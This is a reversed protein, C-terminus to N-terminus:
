GQFRPFYQQTYAVAHEHPYGQSVLNQYYDRAPDSQVAPQQYQQTVNSVPHNNVAPIIKNHTGQNIQQNHYGMQSPMITLEKKRGRLFLLSGLIVLILVGSGAIAVTGFSSSDSSPPPGWRTPDDPYGDAGDSYSWQNDKNSYGDGDSDYCGNRDNTSNGIVSPCADAGSSLDWETTPDSFGDSDFDSCGIRDVSSPGAVEICDDSLPYGPNDGYGDGDIDSWQTSDQPFVDGGSYKTWFEDTDSYGDGDSDLCGKRDETSDGAIDKCYDGNFGDLNDGFGDGDSDAWQSPENIFSDIADYWGDGDLDPCGYAGNQNSNGFQLPCTDQENEAISELYQGPWGEPRDTWSLNGWNDGLGDGDFDSWQLPNQPFADAGNGSDWNGEPNSYGDGDYDYCGLRDYLSDGSTDICDDPNIGASNDGFGDGDSDLWQTPEYDFADDVNAWGDGDSDLCAIKGNETSNGPQLPCTDSNDSWTDQDSDACGQEGQTSTGYYTPCDDFSDDFADGDDNLDEDSDRCGDGDMDTGPESIWTPRPPNFSTRPCTDDVDLVGDNDDDNDEPHDDKCGDNDWDTSSPPDNFDRTSTWGTQSNRPCNDPFNDTIGDNDDDSDCADGESDLDTNEQGPNATNPCNDDEDAVGDGDADLVAITETLWVYPMLVSTTQSQATSTGFDITGNYNGGIALAGNGLLAIGSVADDASSGADFLAVPNGNPGFTVIVSDNYGRTNFTQSSFSFSSQSSLGLITYGTNPDYEIGSGSDFSTGGVSKAWNWSGTSSMSAAFADNQGASTLSSGLNISGSYVGSMLLNNQGDISFDTVTASGSGTTAYASQWNGAQSIKAIGVPIENIGANAVVSGFTMSVEFNTSIWISNSSDVVMSNVEQAGQGRAVDSWQLNGSNSYKAVFIEIDDGNQAGTDAAVGVDTNGLFWGGIIPDNNSDTTISTGYVVDLTNVTVGDYDGDGNLSQAWQWQGNPSIKATWCDWYGTSTLTISGFSITDYFMGTAFIDGNSAVAIDSITAEAYQSVGTISVQEIWQWNGNADSKAIWPEIYQGSTISASGMSMTTSGSIIGAVVLENNPTSDISNLVAPNSASASTSWDNSNRQSFMKPLDEFNDEILQSDTTKENLNISSFSGVILVIILVNAVLSKGINKRAM